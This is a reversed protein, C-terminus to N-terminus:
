KWNETLCRKPTLPQLLAFVGYLVRTGFSPRGREIVAKLTNLIMMSGQAMQKATKTGSTLDEVRLTFEVGGDKAALEYIVKCPPDDHQTFRFTHAFRRPPDWELIEGVIATYKEDKTRMAFRAGKARAGLHMRMNFFCPIVEGDRTIEDWVDQLSGQIHIRYLARTPSSQSVLAPEPM